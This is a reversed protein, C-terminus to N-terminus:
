IHILSLGFQSADFVNQIIGAPANITGTELGAISNFQTNGLTLSSGTSTIKIRNADSTITVETNSASTLANQIQTIASNM